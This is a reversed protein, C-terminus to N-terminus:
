LGELPQKGKSPSHRQNFASALRDLLDLYRRRRMYRPRSLMWGKADTPTLLSTIKSTRHFARDVAGCQQSQYTLGLCHRCLLEDDLFLARKERACGPCLLTQFRGGFRGPHSILLAHFAREANFILLRDDLLVVAATVTAEQRCWTIGFVPSGNEAVAKKVTRLDVRLSTDVTMANKRAKTGSRPGGM